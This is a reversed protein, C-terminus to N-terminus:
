KVEPLCTIGLKKGKEDGSIRAIRMRHNGDDYYAHNKIAVRAFDGVTFSGLKPTRHAQHDFTMVESVSKGALVMEDSYGQLTSLNSVSSHKSDVDELLPFGQAHLTTDTSTSILVKDAQKGGSSFAREALFRGDIKGQLGSVSSEAASYQFVPEQASFLLPQTPTGLRLVWEVGLRDETFRPVFQIDPGDLVDRLQRLRDGVFALDSGRYDRENTGAIEAPLIVPVNGGTHQQAQQVIFRAIGQLSKRTDIPWPYDVDDGPALVPMFRTDTSQDAPSRGALVPLLVRHDFYSWMGGATITLHHSDDDWDHFWVPGGAMIQDGEVACLFSKGPAASSRLRLRANEANRLPVKVKVSDDDNLTIDWPGELVDNLTQIRRGTLLDGIL